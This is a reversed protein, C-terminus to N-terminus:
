WSHYGGVSTPPKPSFILFAEIKTPLTTTKQKASNKTRDCTVM